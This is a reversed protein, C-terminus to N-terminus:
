SIALAPLEPPWLVAPGVLGNENNRPVLGGHSVGWFIALAPLEALDRRRLLGTFWFVAIGWKPRPSRSLVLSGVFTKLFSPQESQESSSFLRIAPREM